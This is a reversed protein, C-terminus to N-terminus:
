ASSGIFSVRASFAVFAWVFRICMEFSGFITSARALANVVLAWVSILRTELPGVDNSVNGHLSRLFALLLRPQKLANCACSLALEDFPYALRRVHEAETLHLGEPRVAANVKKCPLSRAHLSCVLGPLQASSSWWPAMQLQLKGRAHYCVFESETNEVIRM